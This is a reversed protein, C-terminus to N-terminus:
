NQQRQTTKPGYLPKDHNTSRKEVTKMSAIVIILNITSNGDTECQVFAVM